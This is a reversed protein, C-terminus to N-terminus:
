CFNKKLHLGTYNNTKSKNCVEKKGLRHARQIDNDELEIKLEKAIEMIVKDDDDAKFQSEPIGIFELTKKDHTSSCIM